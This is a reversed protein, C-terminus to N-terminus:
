ARPVYAGTRPAEAATPTVGAGYAPPAAPPTPVPASGPYGTSVTAAGSPYGHTQSQRAQEGSSKLFRAGLFGLLVAGGLFLEPKRRAMREVDHLLQNVDRDRLQGSVRDLREAGQDAYKAMGGRDQQHLHQGAARVAEAVTHLQDAARDKQSEAQPKVQQALQGTKRQAEEAARGAQQKAQNVSSTAGSGGASSGQDSM